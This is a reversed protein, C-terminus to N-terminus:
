TTEKPTSEKAASSREAAEQWARWERDRKRDARTELLGHGVWIGLGLAVGMLFLGVFAGLGILLYFGVDGLAFVLAPNNSM